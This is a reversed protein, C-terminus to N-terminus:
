ELSLFPPLKCYKKPQFLWIVGIICALKCRNISLSSSFVKLAVDLLGSIAVHVAGIETKMDRNRMSFNAFSGFLLVMIAWM